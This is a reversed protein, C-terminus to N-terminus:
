TIHVRKYEKLSEELLMQSSKWQGSQARHNVYGLCRPPAAMGSMTHWPHYLKIKKDWYISLGFNEFRKALDKGHAHAVGFFASYEDYMGIAVLWKKRVSLCTGYNRENTCLCVKDLEDLEFSKLLGASPENYRYFYYVAKDNPQHLEWVKSLFDKDPIVMDADPIILLEGQAQRIGENFCFALAQPPNRNLCTVKVKPLKALEKHPNNFNDIWLLEYEENPFNQESLYKATYIQERYSGDVMIVSIKM